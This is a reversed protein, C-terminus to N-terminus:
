QYRRHARGFVNIYGNGLAYGYPNSANCQIVTLDNSGSCNDKCVPGITLITRDTSFALKHSPPNNPDIPNGNQFWQVTAPPIAHASCNMQVYEGVTANGNRPGDVMPNAFKPSANIILNIPFDVTHFGPASGSCAYMGEDSRAAKKILLETNYNVLNVRGDTPISGGDTRRWAISIDRSGSFFCRMSIDQSELGVVTTMQGGPNNTQNSYFMIQPVVTTNAPSGSNVIRQKTGAVEVMSVRNIIRCEWSLYDLDEQTLYAINLYGKEDVQIRRNYSYVTGNAYWLLENADV